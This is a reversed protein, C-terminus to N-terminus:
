ENNRIAHLQSEPPIFRGRREMPRVRERMEYWVEDAECASEACILEMVGVFEFHVPSGKINTYSHQAARGRRKAERLAARGYSSPFTIIREECLRRIGASGDVMVRYQFLLKASYRATRVTEGKDKRKSKVLRRRATQLM